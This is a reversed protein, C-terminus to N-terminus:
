GCGKTFYPFISQFHINSYNLFYFPEGIATQRSSTIVIRDTGNHGDQEYIPLIILDKRLYNATLCLFPNDCWFGDKEMDRFWANSDVHVGTSSQSPLLTTQLEVDDFLTM